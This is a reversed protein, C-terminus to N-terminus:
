QVSSPRGHAWLESLLQVVDWEMDPGRLVTSPLELVAGDVEDWANGWVLGRRDSTGWIMHLEVTWGDGLPAPETPPLPLAVVASPRPSASQDKNRPV